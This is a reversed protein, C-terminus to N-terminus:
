PKLAMSSVFWDLICGPLVRLVVEPMSMAIRLKADKHRLRPPSDYQPEFKLESMDHLPHPFAAQDYLDLQHWSRLM